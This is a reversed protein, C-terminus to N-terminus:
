IEGTMNALVEMKAIIMDMREDTDAYFLHGPLADMMKENGLIERACGALYSIVELDGSHRIKEAIDSTYNFLYVIDEFDHSALLDHKGRDFFADIKSALFYPLPLIRVNLGELLVKEAKAFGSEFWRNGPAWGVGKTSMIDVLLDDFAFRCIITSDAQEQFGKIVLKQRLTELEQVSFIQFTLDIDKTPRIDEASTDDIYLSVMAGGVFVVEQNLEGLAKAIKVTAM